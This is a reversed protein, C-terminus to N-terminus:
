HQVNMKKNYFMQFCPPFLEPYSTVFAQEEHLFHPVIATKITLRNVFPHNIQHKRLQEHYGQHISTLWRKKNSIGEWHCVEYNYCEDPQHINVWNDIRTKMPKLLM